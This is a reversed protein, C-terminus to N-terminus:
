TPMSAATALGICCSPGPGRLLRRRRGGRAGLQELSQGVGAFFSPLAPEAFSGSAGSGPEPLQLPEATIYWGLGGGIAMAALTSLLPMSWAKPRPSRPVSARANAYNDQVKVPFTQVPSRM